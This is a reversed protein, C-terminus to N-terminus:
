PWERPNFVSFTALSCSHFAHMDDRCKAHHPLLIKIELGAKTVYDSGIVFLLLLFFLISSDAHTKRPIGESISNSVM